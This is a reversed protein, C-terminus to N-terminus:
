LLKIEIASEGRKPNQFEERIYVCRRRELTWDSSRIIIIIWLGVCM